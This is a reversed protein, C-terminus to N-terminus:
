VQKPTLELVGSKDLIDHSVRAKQQARQLQKILHEVDGSSLTLHLDKVNDGEVYEVSLTHLILAGDVNTADRNYIHRVDTLVKSQRLVSQVDLLLERAKAMTAVVGDRQWLPRLIQDRESWRNKAEEDWGPFDSREIGATIAEPLSEEREPLQRLIRNFNISLALVAEVLSPSVETQRSCDEALDEVDPKPTAKLLYDVIQQINHPDAYLVAHLAPWAAPPIQIILQPM